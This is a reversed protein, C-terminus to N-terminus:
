ISSCLSTTLMSASKTTACIEIGILNSPVGFTALGHNYNWGICLHLFLKKELSGLAIITELAVAITTM